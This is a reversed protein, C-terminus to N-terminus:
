ILSLGCTSYHCIRTSTGKHCLYRPLILLTQGATSLPAIRCMCCLDCRLTYMPFVRGLVTHLAPTFSTDDMVLLVKWYQEKYLQLTRLGQIHVSARSHQQIHAFSLLPRDGPALLWPVHLSGLAVWSDAGAKPVSSPVCRSQRSLLWLEPLDFFICSPIHFLNFFSASIPPSFVSFSISIKWSFFASYINHVENSSCLLLSKRGMQRCLLCQQLHYLVYCSDSVCTNINLEHSDLMRMFVWYDKSYECIFHNLILECVFIRM